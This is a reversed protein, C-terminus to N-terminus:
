KKEHIIKWKKKRFKWKIVPRDIFVRFIFNTNFVVFVVVIVVVVVNFAAVDVVVAVVVDTGIVVNGVNVVM